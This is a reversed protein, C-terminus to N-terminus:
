KRSGSAHAVQVVTQSCSARPSWGICITGPGLRIRRGTRRAAASAMYPRVLHYAALAGDAVLADVLELGAAPGFAMAIAVARNLEVIPSPARQALLTYLAAIRPWETAEATM